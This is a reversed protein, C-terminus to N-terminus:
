FMMKEGRLGVSIVLGIAAMNAWMFSGGSSIFPLPVGTVPMIGSTMGINVLIHFTIMSVVGTIILVGYTDKSKTAITICRLLLICYALILSSTGIFGFEEGIIAFIFDTHHEPLINLQGQTGLRYGKGWFGGSGIAYISQTVHYADDSVSKEPNIFVLLRELQYNELPIPMGELYSLPGPLDKAVHFYISCVAILFVALILGGFKLPHAGAVFMMGVFIAGFVLATGLDPQVFILLMPPLVFLFAPIFERFTNLRGKRKSLFDAFTVIIMVKALESPQIGYNETVPIWRQAGKASEGIVFVLALLVLMGGYIWWNVKQLNTYDFLAAVVVIVLGTIIWITQTKVYHYPDSSMVNISATSLIFLSAILLILLVGVMVPDIGRFNRPDIKFRM